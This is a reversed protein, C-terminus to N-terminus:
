LIKLNWKVLTYSLFLKFHFDCSDNQRGEWNLGERWSLCRHGKKADPRGLCVRIYGTELQEETGLLDPRLSWSRMSPPIGCTVIRCFSCQPGSYPSPAPGPSEKALGPMLEKSIHPPLFCPCCFSSGNKVMTHFFKLVPCHWHAYAQQHLVWWSWPYPCSGLLSVPTSALCRSRCASSCCHM